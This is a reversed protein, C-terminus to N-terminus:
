WVEVVWDRCEHRERKHMSARLAHGERKAANFVIHFMSIAACMYLSMSFRM